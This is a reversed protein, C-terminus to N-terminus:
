LRIKIYLKKLLFNMLSSMFASDQDMIMYDPICYKSIVDNILVDGIDESKSQYIAVTILYDMVEDIICLKFKHCKYSKPM